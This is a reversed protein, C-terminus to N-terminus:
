ELLTRQANRTINDYNNFKKMKFEPSHSEIQKMSEKVEISQKVPSEYHKLQSELDDQIRSIDFSHHDLARNTNVQLSRGKARPTTQDSVNM